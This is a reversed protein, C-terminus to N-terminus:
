GYIRYLSLEAAATSWKDELGWQNLAFNIFWFFELDGVDGEEIEFRIFKQMSTSIGCLQFDKYQAAVFRVENGFSNLISLDPM